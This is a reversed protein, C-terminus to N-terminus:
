PRNERIVESSPPAKMLGSPSFLQSAPTILRTSASRRFVTSVPNSHILQWGPVQQLREALPSASSSFVFDIAYRDLLSISSKAGAAIERYDHGLAPGYLDIRGDLFVQNAPWLKYILYGGWQDSSYVRKGALEPALIRAAEVPFLHSPFDGPLRPPMLAFAAAPLILLWVSNYAFKPRLDLDLSRFTLFASSKQLSQWLTDLLITFESAVVPTAAVLYLPIHRVSNLAM